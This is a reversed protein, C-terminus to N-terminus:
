IRGSATSILVAKERDTIEIYKRPRDVQLRGNYRSLLVSHGVAKYDYTILYVFSINGCFSYHLQVGVGENCAVEQIFDLDYINKMQEM